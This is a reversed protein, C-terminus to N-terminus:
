QKNPNYDQMLSGITFDYGPVFVDLIMQMDKYTQSPYRDLEILKNKHFFAYSGMKSSFDLNHKECFPIVSETYVRKAIADVKEMYQDYGSQILREINEPTQKM